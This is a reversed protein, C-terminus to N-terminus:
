QTKFQNKWEIFITTTLGAPISCSDAPYFTVGTCQAYISDSDIPRIPLNVLVNEEKESCGLCNTVITLCSIIFYKNM